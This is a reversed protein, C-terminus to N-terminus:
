RERFRRHICRSDWLTSVWVVRPMSDGHSGVIEGHDAGFEGDLPRISTLIEDRELSQTASAGTRVALTLGIDQADDMARVRLRQHGLGERQGGIAEDSAIPELGAPRIPMPRTDIGPLIEMPERGLGGTSTPGCPDQPRWEADPRLSRVM